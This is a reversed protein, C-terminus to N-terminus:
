EYLRHHAGAIDRVLDSLAAPEIEGQHGGQAVCRALEPGLPQLSIM